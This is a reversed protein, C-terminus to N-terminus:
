LFQVRYDQKLPIISAMPTLMRGHLALKLQGEQEQSWQLLLLLVLLLSTLTPVLHMSLNYIYYDINHGGMYERILFCEAQSRVKLEVM